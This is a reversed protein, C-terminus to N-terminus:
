PYFRPASEVLLTYVPFTLLFVFWTIALLVIFRGPITTKTMHISDDGDVPDDPDAATADMELVLLSRFIAWSEQDSSAFQVLIETTTNGLYLWTGLLLILSVVILAEYILLGTRQADPFQRFQGIHPFVSTVASLIFGSTVIVSALM